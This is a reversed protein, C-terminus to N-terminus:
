TIQVQLQSSLRLVEANEFNFSPLNGNFTITGFNVNTAEWVLDNQINDVLSPSWQDSQSITTITISQSLLTYIHLFSFFLIILHKKKM